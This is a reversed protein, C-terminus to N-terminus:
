SEELAAAIRARADGAVFRPMTDPWNEDVFECWDLVARLAAVLAPGTTELRQQADYIEWAAAGVTSSIAIDIDSAITDLRANLDTV